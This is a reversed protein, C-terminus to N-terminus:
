LPQDTVLVAIADSMGEGYQNQGSGGWNVLQHGYEHYVLTSHAENPCDNPSEPVSARAIGISQTASSWGGDCEGAFNVNVPYEFQTVAGPYDPNFQLIYDRAINCHIYANVEARPFEVDDPNFLFAALTPPVVTLQLQSDPEAMNFIRFFQGRVAADLAVPQGPGAPTTLSFSGDLNTYTSDAGSSIRLYPMPMPSEPGCIDAGLGETALGDVTGSAVAHLILSEQHLERGSMADVILQRQDAAPGDLSNDATFRWAVAPPALEDDTGAWVVLEPKSIRTGAGIAKM